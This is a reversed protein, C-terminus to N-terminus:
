GLGGLGGLGGKGDMSKALEKMMKQMGGQGGLQAMMRPDLFQQFTQSTNRSMQEMNMNKKSMKGVKGVVKSFRKYEILLEDVEQPYRGSGRAIRLKRSATFNIKPNEMEEVTMSDMMTQFRKIRLSGDVGNTNQMMESMGPIMGMVKNLPGLKAISDFQDYM